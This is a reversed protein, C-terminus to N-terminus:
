PREKQVNMAYDQAVDALDDYSMGFVIPCAEKMTKGQALTQVLEKVKEDGFRDIINMVM